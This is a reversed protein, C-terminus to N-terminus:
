FPEPMTQKDWRLGYKISLRPAPKWQDQAFLAFDITSYSYRSLGFNQQFNSYNKAGPTVLDRGLALTSPYTYVGGFQTPNDIYDYVRNMEAGFKFAHRGTMYSFNDVFQQRREDPLAYRELFTARGFSFNGSGNAYTQPPPQDAIEYEFDRS